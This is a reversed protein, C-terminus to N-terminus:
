INLVTAGTSLTVYFLWPFVHRLTYSIHLNIDSNQFNRGLIDFVEWNKSAERFKRIRLPKELIRLFELNKLAEWFEVRGVSGFSFGSFVPLKSQILIIM